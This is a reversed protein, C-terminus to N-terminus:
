ATVALLAGSEGEWDQEASHDTREFRRAAEEWNVVPWWSKL